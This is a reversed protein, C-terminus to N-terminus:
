LDGEIPQRGEVSVTTSHSHAQGTHRVQTTNPVFASVLFDGVTQQFETPRVPPSYYSLTRELPPQQQRWFFVRRPGNTVLETPDQQHFAICTQHDGAPVATTTRPQLQDATPRSSCVSSIDWVSVQLSCAM